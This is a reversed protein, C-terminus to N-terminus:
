KKNATAAAKAALAATILQKQTMSKKQKPKLNEVIQVKQGKHIEAGIPKGKDYYVAQLLKGKDWKTHELIIGDKDWHIEDGDIKEYYYSCQTKKKGNTHWSRELGHRKGHFYNIEAYLQNCCYYHRQTGHMLGEHFPVEAKPSGDEYYTLITATEKGDVWDIISRISGNEHWTTERGDKVGMNWNIKHKLLGNPWFIKEFGHKVGNIGYVWIHITECDPHYIIKHGDKAIEGDKLQIAKFVFPSVEEITNLISSINKTSATNETEKIFSDIPAQMEDTM